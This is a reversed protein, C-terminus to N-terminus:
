VLNSIHRIFHHLTLFHFSKRSSFSLFTPPIAFCFAPCMCNMAKSPGAQFVSGTKWGFLWGHNDQRFIGGADNTLMPAVPCGSLLSWTNATSNYIEGNKGGYGGSWSGGITFIRGDSLTTSAQYGRAINMTAGISWSDTLPDYISTKSATDGGTVVARGNGDVSMGPCFMDHATNVVNRESVSGTAPDYTATYTNGSAGISFTSVRYSAFTM